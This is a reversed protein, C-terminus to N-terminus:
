GAEALYAQASALTKAGLGKVGELRGANLADRFTVLDFIGYEQYLLKITKAGLGPIAALEMVSKPTHEAWEEIKRCTGTDLFEGVIGAITEGIGQIERLRGERHLLVVSEPYRSVAHALKPYRAAHSEEYGGIILFEGLQKLKLGIEDNRRWRTRGKEDIYSSDDIDTM